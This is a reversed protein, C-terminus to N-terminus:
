PFDHVLMGLLLKQLQHAIEIVLQNQQLSVQLLSFWYLIQIHQTLKVYIFVIVKQQHITIYIHFIHCDM